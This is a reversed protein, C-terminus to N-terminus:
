RCCQQRRLWKNSSLSHTRCKDDWYTMGIRYNNYVLCRVSCLDHSIEDLESTHDFIAFHSQEVEEYAGGVIETRFSFWALSKVKRNDM